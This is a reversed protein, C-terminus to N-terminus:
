LRCYPRPGYSLWLIEVKKKFKSFNMRLFLKETFLLEINCCQIEPTRFKYKAKREEKNEARQFDDGGRKRGGKTLGSVKPSLYTATPIRTM